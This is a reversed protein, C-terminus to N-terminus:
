NKRTLIIQNIDAKVPPYFYIKKDKCLSLVGNSEEARDDFNEKIRVTAPEVSYNGAPIVKWSFNNLGGPMKEVAIKITAPPAVGQLTVSKAVPTPTPAPTPAPAQTPQPMTTPLPGPTVATNVKFLVFDWTNEWTNKTKDSITPSITSFMRQIQPSDYAWFGLFLFAIICFSVKKKWITLGGFLGAFILLINISLGTYDKLANEISTILGLSKFLLYVFTLSLIGCVTMLFASQRENKAKQSMLFFFYAAIPTGAVTWQFLGKFEGIIVLCSGAFALLFIMSLRKSQNEKKLFVIVAFVLEMFALFKWFFWGGAPITSQAQVPQQAIAAPNSFFKHLYSFCIIAIIALIFTAILPLRYTKAWVKIKDYAAALRTTTQPHKVALTTWEARLWISINNFM